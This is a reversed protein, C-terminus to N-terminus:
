NEDYEEDEEEEDDEPSSVEDIEKDGDNEEDEDESGADTLVIDLSKPAAPGEFWKMKYKGEHIIWGHCEPPMDPEYPDTSSYWKSAVLSTRKIKEKLVKFCPPMSSGDMTKVDTISQNKKKKQKYKDLFIQFRVENISTLKKKGYVKCLFKEIEKEVDSPIESLGEGLTAFAEQAPIDDKLLKFPRLKGKRSFAATYDCGFFAHFAPLALALSSGIGEFIENISIYRLNNKSSVGVELWLKLNSNLNLLKDFCGLAIILCDVDNTRVITTLSRDDNVMSTADSSLQQFASFSVHHFMRSDAEEHNSYLRSEERRLVSNNEVIYKYCTDGCNAYLTKNEIIGVM